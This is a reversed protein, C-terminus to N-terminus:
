RSARTSVLPRSRSPCAAMVLVVVVALGLQFQVALYVCAFGIDLFIPTISFLLYQFFNNIASRGDTSGSTEM